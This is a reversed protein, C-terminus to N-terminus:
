ASSLMYGYKSNYVMMEKIIREIIEVQLLKNQRFGKLRRFFFLQMLNFAVIMFMLATELGIEDHIFCHNMHWQTKLQRFINNEIGWRAHIIKRITDLDMHKATTIIWIESTETKETKLNTIEEIYKIFRVTGEVGTMEIDEYWAWVKMQKNKTMEFNWIKDACRNKFLGMADKVINLRTDKVRVVTDMGYSKVANIWPANCALADYVIVDAYHHHKDCLKQLLRKAGTLEGEDKNSSDKKPKLMEQGIVIHPDKGVYAAVVSRHFYHMVGNKERRLCCPCSKKTSEFLEVGDFAVVKYGDITGDRFLKNERSEKIISDHMKEVTEIEFGKLSDRIADIRPLKMKKSVVKKFDNNELWDDLQNFSRIKLMFGLLVAFAVSSTPIRKNERKDKLGKIKEGVKYVTNVYHILKRLYNKNM